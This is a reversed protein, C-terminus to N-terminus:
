VSVLLIISKVRVAFRRITCKLRSCLDGLVREFAPMLVAGAVFVRSLDYIFCYSTFNILAWELSLLGQTKVFKALFGRKVWGCFM